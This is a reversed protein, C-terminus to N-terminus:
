GPPACKQGNLVLLISNCVQVTRPAEPQFGTNHPLPPFNRHSVRLGQQQGSPHKPLQYWIHGFEKPFSSEELRSKWLGRLLCLLYDMAMTIRHPCYGQALNSGAQGKRLASLNTEKGEM